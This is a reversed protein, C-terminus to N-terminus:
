LGELRFLAAVFLIASSFAIVTVVVAQFAWGWISLASHNQLYDEIDGIIWFTHKIALFALFCLTVAVLLSLVLYHTEFTILSALTNM